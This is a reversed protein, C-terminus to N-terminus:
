LADFVFADVFTAQKATEVFCPNVERLRAIAEGGSLRQTQRLYLALITGTRGCGGQCHVVVTRGEQRQTVLFDLAQRAQADTPPQFDPIVVHATAVVSEGFDPDTAGRLNLVAVPGTAQNQVQALWGPVGGPAKEPAPSAALLGPEVWQVFDTSDPPQTATEQPGPSELTSGPCGPLCVLLLVIPWRM